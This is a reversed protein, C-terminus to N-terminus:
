FNFEAFLSESPLDLTDIPKFLKLTEINVIENFKALEEDSLEKALELIKPALFPVDYAHGSNFIYDAYRKTPKIDREEGRRVNPWMEMTRALSADRTKYDRYSRRLFRIAKSDIVDRGNYNYSDFPCLYIKFIFDFDLNSSLKPNMTQIGEVIIMDRGSRKITDSIGNPRHLTFDFYPVDITEGHFFANMQKKFLEVDFAELCEYDYDEGEAPAEGRAIQNKKTTEVDLYYNDLSIVHTQVGQSGIARSLRKSFTTKSSSSPGTLLILGCYSDNNVIRSGIMRMLTEFERNNARESLEILKAIEGNEIMQNLNEVIYDM